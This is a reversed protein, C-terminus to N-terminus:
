IMEIFGSLSSGGMKFWAADDKGFFVIETTDVYYPNIMQQDLTVLTSNTLTEKLTFEYNPLKATNMLVRGFPSLRIGTPVDNVYRFNSFLARLKGDTNLGFYVVQPSNLNNASDKFTEDLSEITQDHVAKHNTTM